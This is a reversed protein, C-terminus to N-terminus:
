HHAALLPCGGQALHQPKVIKLVRRLGARRNPSQQANPRARANGSQGSRARACHLGFEVGLPSFGHGVSHRGQQKAIQVVNEFFAIGRAPARRDILYEVFVSNEVFGFAANVAAAVLDVADRADNLRSM